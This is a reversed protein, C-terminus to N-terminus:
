IRHMMQRCRRNTVEAEACAVGGEELALSRARETADPDYSPASWEKLLLTLSGTQTSMAPHM